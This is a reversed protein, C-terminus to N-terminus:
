LLALTLTLLLTGAAAGMTAAEILHQFPTL